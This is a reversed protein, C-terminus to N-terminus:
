KVCDMLLYLGNRPFLLRILPRPYVAKAASLLGGAHRQGVAGELLDGFSLQTSLTVKSFPALMARAEGLTYAKTGPSELHESYIRAMPTFPRGALLGYRAWLMAGVLSYKYYIMMRAVGGPRLVRWVERLAQPTNPTHHLVGWSYVFDFSNDAFPLSEADGVRLNSKLRYQAFREGTLTIARDTLDVGTLSKPGSRALQLHDAGMGVGIELVDKGAAEEFRAFDLIYPELEYRRRAEAELDFKEDERAYVEGCAEADWYARVAEKEAETM